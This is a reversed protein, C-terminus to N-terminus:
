QYKKKDRNILSISRYNEKRITDRDLKPIQIIRAESFAKPTGLTLLIIILDKFKKTSNMLSAM